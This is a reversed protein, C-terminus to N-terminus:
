RCYDQFYDSIFKIHIKKFSSEPRKRNILSIAESISSVTQSKLLYAAVIMASRSRGAKCHVYVSGNHLLHHSILRVAKNAQNMTPVGVFDPIPLICQEVGFRKWKIDYHSLEEPENCSIVLTARLRNIIEASLENDPLGGQFLNDIIRSYPSCLGVLYLFRNYYLSPLFMLRPWIPGDQEEMSAM